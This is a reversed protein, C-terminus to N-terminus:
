TSRQLAIAAQCLPLTNWCSRSGQGCTQTKPTPKRSPHSRGFVGPRKGAPRPQASDPEQPTRASELQCCPVPPISIGRQGDEDEESSGRPHLWTTVVGAPRSSHTQEDKLAPFLREGFPAPLCIGMQCRGETPAPGFGTGGGLSSGRADWSVGECSQPWVQCGKKCCSNVAM